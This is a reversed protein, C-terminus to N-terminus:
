GQRVKVQVGISGPRLGPTVFDAYMRVDEITTEVLELTPGHQHQATKDFVRYKRFIGATFMQLEQYALNIGLCQRGGKSFTLHRRLLRPDDLYREPRFEDPDSYWDPHRNLLPANMGVITGAPIVIQKGDPYTFILDDSPAVRDQRHTASPYLRLAEEILANMFPLSSLTVPDLPQHLDPMAGELEARLRDFISQDNLIHFTLASLTSATTDTGAITLVMAEDILRPTSKEADSTDSELIEHFITRDRSSSKAAQIAKIQDGL